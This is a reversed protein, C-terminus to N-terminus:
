RTARDSPAPRNPRRTPERGAPNAAPENTVARITPAHLDTHDVVVSARRAPSCAAFYLRQGGVYRKNTSHNPDPNTGDRAAMRAVSVPFPVELFVSYDWRDVLEDRHLFLGDLVLVTDPSIRQWPLDLAEDSALDHAAPRYWGSGGPGFADLVDATLAAYNYSDLWFGEPSDRGRRHRIARPHHFDDASLHVTRRELSRLVGALEGAFTSKGAGDV